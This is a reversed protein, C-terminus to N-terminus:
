CYFNMAMELPQTIQWMEFELKKDIISISYNSQM